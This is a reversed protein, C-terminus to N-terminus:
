SKIGWATLLYGTAMFDPHQMEILAQERIEEYNDPIRTWKQFFPLGVRFALAMDQSLSQGSPEGARFIPTHVRTQVNQIGHQTMLSALESTVGFSTPHFLHGSRYCTELFINYLSMLASSNCENLFVGETIRIIGGSCTVRQYELLLKRWEWTRIWSFGFRQNVLDFSAPPFELMRQADMTQFAVRGDLALRQAQTRAHEIMKSSIDVGVLKEITPYTLATELLWGGTGCAVDLVRQLSAPDAQEPLVGGMATTVMKDQVELRAMEDPNSRDRVIYTNASERQPEAPYSM